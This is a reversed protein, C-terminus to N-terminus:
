KIPKKNRKNTTYGFANLEQDLLVDVPGVEEVTRPRLKFDSEGVRFAVEPQTVFQQMLQCNVAAVLQPKVQL